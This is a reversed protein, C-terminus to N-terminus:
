DCICSIIIQSPYIIYRCFFFFSLDLFLLNVIIASPSFFLMKLLSHISLRGIIICYTCTVHALWISITLHNTDNVLGPCLWWAHPLSLNWTAHFFLFSMPPSPESSVGIWNRLTQSNAKGWTVWEPRQPALWAHICIHIYSNNFIFTNTHLPFVSKVVKDWPWGLDPAHNWKSILGLSISFAFYNARHFSIHLFALEKVAM